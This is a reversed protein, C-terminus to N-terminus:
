GCFINGRDIHWFSKRYFWLCVCVLKIKTNSTGSCTTPSGSWTANPQCTRVTSGSLIFGTDCYFLMSNPFVTSDGSSSGNVPVSLSGCDVAQFSFNVFRKSLSWYPQAINTIIPEYQCYRVSSASLIFGEDCNFSVKNPFTTELGTMSGNLPKSLNGCDKVFAPSM